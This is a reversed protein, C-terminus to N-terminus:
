DVSEALLAVSKKELRNCKIQCKLGREGRPSRSIYRGLYWNDDYIEIWARRSSLSLAAFFIVSLFMFIEIWARRSSLSAFVPYILVLLSLKLGREGHPSRSNPRFILHLILSIEIWARRSSLSRDYRAPLM